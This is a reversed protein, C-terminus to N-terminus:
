RIFFPINIMTYFNINSLSSPKNSLSFKHSLSETLLAEVEQSSLSVHDNRVGFSTSLNNGENDIIYVINLKSKNQKLLSYNSASITNRIFNEYDSAVAEIKMNSTEIISNINSGQNSIKQKADDFNNSKYVKYGSIISEQIPTVQAICSKGLLITLMLTILHITTKM